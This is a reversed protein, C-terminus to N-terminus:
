QAAKQFKLALAQKQRQIAQHKAISNNNLKQALSKKTLEMRAKRAKEEQEKKKKEEEQKKKLEAEKTKKTENAKEQKKTKDEAIINLQDLVMTKQDINKAQVEM